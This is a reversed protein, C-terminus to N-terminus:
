LAAATAELQSLRRAMRGVFNQTVHPLVRHTAVLIGVRLDNLAPLEFPRWLLEGSQLEEIFAIKYDHGDATLTPSGARSRKARLSNAPLPM